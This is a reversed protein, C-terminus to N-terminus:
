KGLDTLLAQAMSIDMIALGVIKCLTIKRNNGCQTKPVPTNPTLQGLELLHTPKVEADILEGSELLTHEISDVLIKTDQTKFLEVLPTDCEHMHSKYSGILSIYTYGPGSFNQFHEQLITPDTSPVCGFIIDSQGVLQPVANKDSLSVQGITLDPLHAQLSTTDMPSSRYVITATISKGQLLKCCIYLHWFAQLGTGFVTIKVSPGFLSLDRLGICSSMATRVATLQKAQVVGVLSGSKSDTVVVAGVFGQGSTSSFGLSKVGCYVDDVVPMILFTSTGDPTSSVIRPPIIVPNSSYRRLASQLQDIYAILQERSANLFHQQVQSDQIISSDM